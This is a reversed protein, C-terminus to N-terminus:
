MCLMLSHMFYVLFLNKLYQLQFLVKIQKNTASWGDGVDCCWGASGFKFFGFLNEIAESLILPFDFVAAIGVGWVAAAAVVVVVVVVVDVIAALGIRRPRSRIGFGSGSVIVVLLRFGEAADVGITIRRELGPMIPFALSFVM